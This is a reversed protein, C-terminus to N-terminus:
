IFVEPKLLDSLRIVDYWLVNKLPRMTFNQPYFFYGRYARITILILFQLMIELYNRTTTAGMLSSSSFDLNGWLTELQLRQFASAQSDYHSFYGDSFRSSSSRQVGQGGANRLVSQFSLLTQEAHRGFAWRKHTLRRRGNCETVAKSLRFIRDSDHHASLPRLTHAVPRPCCSYVSLPECMTHQDTHPLRDAMNFLEAAKECIAQFSPLHM